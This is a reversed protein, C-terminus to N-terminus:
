REHCWAKKGTGPQHHEGGHLFERGSQQQSRDPKVRKRRLDPARTFPAGESLARHGRQRQNRDARYQSPSDHKPAKIHVSTVRQAEHTPYSVNPTDCQQSLKDELGTLM